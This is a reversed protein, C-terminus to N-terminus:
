ANGNGQYEQFSVQRVIKSTIQDIQEQCARTADSMQNSLVWAMLKPEPYGPGVESRISVNSKEWDGSPAQISFGISCEVSVKYIGQQDM